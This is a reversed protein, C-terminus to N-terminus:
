QWTHASEAVPRQRAQLMQSVQWFPTQSGMGPPTGHPVRLSPWGAAQQPEQWTQSWALPVHRLQLAQSTQRFPTQSGTTAALGHPVRGLPWGAAQQPAFWSQQLPVQTSRQVSALQPFGHPWTGTPLFHQLQMEVLIPVSVLQAPQPLMQVPPCVHLLPFHVHGAFVSGQPDVQQV